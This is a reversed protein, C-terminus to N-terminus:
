KKFGVGPLHTATPSALKRSGSSKEPMAGEATTMFTALRAPNHM